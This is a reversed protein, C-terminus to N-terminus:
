LGARGMRNIVTDLLEDLVTMVRSAAEYSKQYRLMDVTEEDQNVGSVSDRRDLFDNAVQAFAEQRGEHFNLDSGLKGLLHVEFDAFTGVYKEGYSEFTNSSETLKAAIQQAYDEVNQNKDYIFYGAGGTVWEDSLTINGATISNQTKGALLTKYVTKGNADVMPKGTTEDLIPITNNVMNALTNAFTDLQDRYYPIGQFPEENNSQVNHGRGNLFHINALLSGSNLSINEGSSRWQISVTQDSNTTLSLSDAKSGNVILHGGMSVNVKGDALESISLDGYAALEDLLLNRQDLLENPRYHQNAPDTIVTPDESILQNLHAIQASIDNVRNISVSLDEAKQAAVKSLNTDLQQLVQTINKFASMVLNAQTDMTPEGIFDNLSDYIQKIAGYLGSEDTINNGDGLAAQIEDLIGASEGHYSAKTYEDRFRKDLFSDRTQSVGMTNVGQGMVGIRSSGVRNQYGSTSVAARDVRQRTYGNTDINALNNGMIDISKQNAFIASKATEFGMFTPRM